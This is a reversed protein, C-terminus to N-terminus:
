KKKGMRFGRVTCLRPHGAIASPQLMRQKSSHCTVNKTWVNSWFSAHVANPGSGIIRCTNLTWATPCTAYEDGHHSKWTCTPLPLVKYPKRLYAKLPPLPINYAQQLPQGHQRRFVTLPRRVPNQDERQTDAVADAKSRTNWTLHTLASCLSNSDLLHVAPGQPHQNVINVRRPNLHCFLIYLYPHRRM